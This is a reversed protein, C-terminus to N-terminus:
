DIAFVINFKLLCLCCTLLFNNKIVFLFNMNELQSIERKNYLHIQRYGKESNGLCVHFNCYHRYSFFVGSQDNRELVSDKYLIQGSKAM